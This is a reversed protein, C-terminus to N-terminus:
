YKLDRCEIGRHLPTWLIQTTRDISRLTIRGRMIRVRREGGGGWCGEM